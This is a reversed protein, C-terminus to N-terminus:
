MPHKESGSPRLLVRNGILWLATAALLLVTLELTSTHIEFIGGALREWVAGLHALSVQFNMLLDGWHIAASSIVRELAVRLADPYAQWFGLWDGSSELIMAEIRQGFGTVLNLNSSNWLFPWAFALLALAVLMQVAFVLWLVSPVTLRRNLPPTIKALVGASLDRDLPLDPLEMLTLFLSRMLELRRTCDPCRELHTELVTLQKWDLEGDLYENLIEDKPHLNEYM